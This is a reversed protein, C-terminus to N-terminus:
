LANGGNKIWDKIFGWLGVIFFEDKAQEIDLDFVFLLMILFCHITIILWYLLVFPIAFIRLFRKIIESM